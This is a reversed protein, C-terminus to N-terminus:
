CILAFFVRQPPGDLTSQFHSSARMDYIRDHQPMHMPGPQSSQIEDWANDLLRNGDVSNFNRLFDSNQTDPQMFPQDFESDLLQQLHAHGDLYFQPESAIPMSSPIEKLRELRRGYTFLYKCARMIRCHTEWSRLKSLMPM